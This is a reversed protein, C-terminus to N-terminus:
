FCVVTCGCKKPANIMTIFPITKRDMEQLENKDIMGVVEMSNLWQFWNQRRFYEARLKDKMEQEKLRDNEFMGQYKYGDEIEKIKEGSPIQARNISKVKGRNM